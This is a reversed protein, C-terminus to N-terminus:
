GASEEGSRESGEGEFSTTYSVDGGNEAPASDPADTSAATEPAPSEAPSEPAAQPQESPMAPTEPTPPAPPVPASSATTEQKPAEQKPAEQKPAEPESYNLRKKIADGIMDGLAFNSVTESTKLENVATVPGGFRGRDGRDGGRFGDGDRRDGGRGGGRREGGGGGRPEGRDEEGEPRPLGFILSHADPDVEIVNVTLKDGAKMDPLRKSERGMRGRPLFGEVDEVGVVVGKNSIERVEGEWRSGVHFKESISPWPDDQAQRYSLSLRQKKSSSDLVKVDIEM